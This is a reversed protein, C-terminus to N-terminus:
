YVVRSLLVIEPFAIRLHHLSKAAFELPNFCHKNNLSGCLAALISKASCVAQHNYILNLKRRVSFIIFGSDLRVNNFLAAAVMGNRTNIKSTPV